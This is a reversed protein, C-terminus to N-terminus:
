VNKKDHDSTETEEGQAVDEAAETQSTEEASKVVKKQASEDKDYAKEDNATEDKNIKEPIDRVNENLLFTKVLKKWLPWTFFFLYLCFYMSMYSPVFKNYTLLVFPVLCHPLLMFVYLWGLFSTVRAGHLSGRWRAAKASKGWISLFEREVKIILFENLFVLYYGSHFGHWVALFLLTVLQSVTRSGMFKLRKYIYVAVWNNTNINFSEIVHGFKTSTELRSPKVNACGRWDIRQRGKDDETVGVYSLGSIVCVGEAILWFAIYRSLTIKCWFPLLALKNLFCSNIFDESSPWDPFLYMAGLIHFMLYLFGCGLRQLGYGLPSGPLADQYTPTMSQQYKRMQIQPGIFYGGIFFNHSLMEILSPSEDLATKQQDRSLSDTGRRRARAGDYCDFTLAILRLCLVCHPMTWCIDYGESETFYYGVLLYGFNFIFSIIVSVLTGGAAALIIYTSLIAALSHQIDQGIVFWGALLGSIIFYLHQLTTSQRSIYKRYFLVVPYGLLQGLLLRVAAESGGAAEAIIKVISM